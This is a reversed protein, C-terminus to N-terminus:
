QPLPGRHWSVWQQCTQDSPGRAARLLPWACLPIRPLKDAQKSLGGDAVGRFAGPGMWSGEHQVWFASCIPALSFHRGLEESPVMIAFCPESLFSHLLIFILFNCKSDLPAQM